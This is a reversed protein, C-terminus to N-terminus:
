TIETFMQSPCIRINAPPILQGFWWVAERYIHLLIFAFVWKEDDFVSLESPQQWNQISWELFFSHTFHFPPSLLPLTGCIQHYTCDRNLVRPPQRGICDNSKRPLSCWKSARREKLLKLQGRRKLGIRGTSWTKSIAERMEPRSLTCRTKWYPNNKGLIQPSHSTAMPFRDAM